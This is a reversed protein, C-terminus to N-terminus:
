PPVRVTGVKLFVSHTHTHTHTHMCTCMNCTFTHESMTFLLIDVPALVSLSAIYKNITGAHRMLAASLGRYLKLPGEESVVLM